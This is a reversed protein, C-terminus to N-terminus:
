FDSEGINAFRDYRNQLYQVKWPMPEILATSNDNTSNKKPEEHQQQEAEEEPEIQSFKVHKKKKQAIDKYSVTTM